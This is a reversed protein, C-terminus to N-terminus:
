ADANNDRPVEPHLPLRIRIEAFEGLVSEVKISGGHRTIIDATLSLGLGTGKGTDKTTVFPEFMRQRLDDAIGPGNDRVWFEFGDNTRRSGIGLEPKYGSELAQRKEDIAQCANTLINLFARGLDQPVVEIMGIDADLDEQMTVNFESDEARMAHYALDRYQKLLANLDTERWGGGEARSHELMSRVIGDARNSHERVKTLNLRLDNLIEDIEEFMESDEGESEELIEGIEEILEVSVETFNNVFNLPNKIEHAVGATLQGLSALKEEAIIQEQAKHLRELAQELDKNKVEVEQALKEVLNLRQVELAHRRFVELANAMDTVEDDGSVAVPAELDGGAMDRMSAALGTLRRVLYRGVFLWGILVAGAVSLLTLLVLVSIGTAAATQSKANVAVADSNVEDVLRQMDALLDASAQRGAALADGEQRLRDLTERRLAFVGSASEGIEVLRTADRVLGCLDGIRTGVADLRQAEAGCPGAAATASQHDVRAPSETPLHLELRAIVRRLNYAASQFREELPALLDRDALSLAEGMQLGALNAQQSIEILDRYYFLEGGWDRRTLPQARDELNRMGEVLFFGQDDIATAIAREIRRNLEGLEESLAELTREVTLRRGSSQYVEDLLTGFSMLRSQLARVQDDLAAGAGLEEVVDLLEEREWLVEASVVEHEKLSTASVMRVAGNVLTASQRAVEVARSLNPISQVALRSQYEVIENLFYYAVFSAISVLAVSGFLGLYIQTGIGVRRGSARKEVPASAAEPEAAPMNKLEDSM